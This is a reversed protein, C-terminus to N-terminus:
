AAPQIYGASKYREFGAQTLAILEAFLDADYRKFNFCSKGQMRKQLEDSLGALLDPFVYVPMLYFSVYNKQVKVSGFFLAQRNPLIHRTDLSYGCAGDAAVVLQIAFPELITRLKTFVQSRDEDSTTM